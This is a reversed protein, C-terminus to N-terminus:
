SLILRFAEDLSKLNFDFCNLYSMLVTNYFEGGKGVILSIGSKTVNHVAGAFLDKGLQMPDRDTIKLASAIANPNTAENVGDLLSTQINKLRHADGSTAIPPSETVTITPSAKMIDDDDLPEDNMSVKSADLLSERSRTVYDMLKGLPNTLKSSSYSKKFNWRCNLSDSSIVGLSKPIGGDGFSSRKKNTASYMSETIDSNDTMSHRRSRPTKGEGDSHRPEENYEAKEHQIYIGNSKDTSEIDDTDNKVGVVIQSREKEIDLDIGKIDLEEKPTDSMSDIHDENSPFKTQVQKLPAKGGFTELGQREKPSAFTDISRVKQTSLIDRSSDSLQLEKPSHSKGESSLINRADIGQRENRLTSLIEDFDLENCEKALPSIKEHLDLGSCEKPLPSKRDSFDFGYQEKSTVPSKGGNSVVSHRDKSISLRSGDSVSNHREKHTKILKVIRDIREGDDSIISSVSSLSLGPSDLEKDNSTMRLRPPQISSPSTSTSMKLKSLFDIREGNVGTSCARLRASSKDTSTQPIILRPSPIANFSAKGDIDTGNKAAIDQSIKLPEQSPSNKM